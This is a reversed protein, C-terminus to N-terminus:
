HGHKSRNSMPRGSMFTSLENGSDPSGLMGPMQRSYSPVWITYVSELKKKAIYAGKWELYNQDSVAGNDTVFLEDSTIEHTGTVNGTSNTPAVTTISLALGSANTKAVSWSYAPDECGTLSVAPLYDPGQLMLTCNTAADVVFEYYCFVSHPICGAYFDAVAYSTANRKQHLTSALAAAPFLPVINYKM